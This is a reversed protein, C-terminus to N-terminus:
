QATCVLYLHQLLYLDSVAGWSELGGGMQRQTILPEERAAVGVCCVLPLASDGMSKAKCASKGAIGVDLDLGVPCGLCHKGSNQLQSLTPDARRNEPGWSRSEWLGWAFPLALEVCGESMLM